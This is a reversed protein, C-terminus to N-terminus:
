CCKRANEWVFLKNNLSSLLEDVINIIMLRLWVWFLVDPWMNNHKTWLEHNPSVATTRTAATEVTTGATVTCRRTSACTTPASSGDPVRQDVAVFLWVGFVFCRSLILSFVTPYVLLFPSWTKRNTPVFTEYEATFGQDVYSSDSHFKITMVNSRSTIVTSEPKSGCLRCCLSLSFVWCSPYWVLVRWSTSPCTWFCEAPESWTWLSETSQNLASVYDKSCWDLIDFNLHLM